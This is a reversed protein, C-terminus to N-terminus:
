GIMYRAEEVTITDPQTRPNYFGLIELYRGSRPAEKEIAVIRYSPQGKGGRTTISDKGYIKSRRQQELRVDTAIWAHGIEKVTKMIRQVDRFQKMLRNVDQVQTGSGAAIRRRRSANLLEPKRRELPTMSDIIAETVKISSKETEQPSVTRAM